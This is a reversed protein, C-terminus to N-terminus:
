AIRRLEFNANCIAALEYLWHAFLYPTQERESKTVLPRFGLDGVRRRSGDSRRGSTGIVCPASGLMLPMLPIDVPSCGVVYLLSAKEARHGFDSQFVPLTWGGFADFKGPAPLGADSWLMSKKPHELVGGNRRVMDVAFFALDKEGPLPKSMHRLQGWARCPPHAIVANGGMWTRADRDIDYVDCALSKYISDSRAFLVTIM